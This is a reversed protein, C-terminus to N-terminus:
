APSKTVVCYGFVSRLHRQTYSTYSKEPIDTDIMDMQTM